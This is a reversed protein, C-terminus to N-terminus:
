CLPMACRRRIDEVLRERREASAAGVIKWALPELEVIEGSLQLAQVGSAGYDTRSPALM